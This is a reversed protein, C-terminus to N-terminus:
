AESGADVPRPGRRAQSAAQGVPRPGRTSTDSPSPSVCAGHPFLPRPWREVGRWEGQLPRPGRRHPAWVTAPSGPTDQVVTHDVPVPLPPPLASAAVMGYHRLFRLLHQACTAADAVIVQAREGTEPADAAVGLLAQMRGSASGGTRAALSSTQVRPRLPEWPSDEAAPPQRMPGTTTTLLAPSVAQQRYHSVYLLQVAEEAIGLVAPAHLRV